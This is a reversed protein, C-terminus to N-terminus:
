VRASPVGALQRARTWSGFRNQITKPDVDGMCRAFSYQPLRRVEALLHEDTYRPARPRNVGKPWGAGGGSKCERRMNAQEPFCKHLDFRTLLQRFYSLNFGLIEATASRSYGLEAFGKVVDVFPEGFEKRVAMLKNMIANGM